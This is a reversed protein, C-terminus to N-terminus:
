RMEARLLEMAKELVQEPPTDCPLHEHPKVGRGTIFVGRRILVKAVEVIKPKGDSGIM